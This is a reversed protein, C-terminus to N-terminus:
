DIPNAAALERLRVRLSEVEASEAKTLERYQHWRDPLASFSRKALDRASDNTTYHQCALPQWDADCEYLFVGSEALDEAIVLARVNSLDLSAGGVTVSLYGTPASTSDLM